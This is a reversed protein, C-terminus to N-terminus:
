RGRKGQVEAAPGRLGQTSRGKPREAFLPIERDTGPGMHDLTPKSIRTGEDSVGRQGTPGYFSAGEAGDTGRGGEPRQAAVEGARPSTPRRRKDGYKGADREVEAQGAMPDAAVLLETARLRKLEDRLRAAEEFDLDAAAARMRKELDAMVTKLNHGITAGTSALGTDVRVHDREFV